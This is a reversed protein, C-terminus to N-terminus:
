GPPGNSGGLDTTAQSRGSAAVPRFRLPNLANLQVRFQQYESPREVALWGVYDSVILLGVVLTLGLLAGLLSSLVVGGRDRRASREPSDIITILPTNRVEDVRAQEYSQSLSVFVEQRLDVQRELRSQELRLQPSSGLQRNHTAFQQLAAEARILEAEAQAMRNEIFVREAAAASLRKRLNFENVLELLRKNVQEALLPSPASVRLTVIGAKPDTSIRSDDRLRDVTRRVKEDATRGRSRYWQVLTARSSPGNPFHSLVTERLLQTSNLLSAYFDISENISGSMPVNIGFQSALGALKAHTGERVQPTFRSEASYSPGQLLALAAGALAALLPVGLVLQKRRVATTLVRLAARERVRTM